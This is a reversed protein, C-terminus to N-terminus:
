NKVPQGRTKKQAGLGLESDQKRADVVEFEFQVNDEHQSTSFQGVERNDSSNNSSQQIEITVRNQPVPKM